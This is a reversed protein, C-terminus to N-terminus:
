NRKRVKVGGKLITPFSHSFGEGKVSVTVLRSSTLIHKEQNGYAIGLCDDKVAAIEKDQKLNHMLVTRPNPGCYFLYYAGRYSIRMLHAMHTPQEVWYVYILRIFNKFATQRWQCDSKEEDFFVFEAPKESGLSSVNTRLSYERGAIDRQQEDLQVHYPHSIRAIAEKLSSSSYQFSLKYIHRSTLIFTENSGRRVKRLSDRERWRYSSVDGKTLNPKFPTSMISWRCVWLIKRDRTSYEIDKLVDAEPYAYKTHRQNPGEKLKYVVRNGVDLVLIFSANRYHRGTVIPKTPKRIKQSLDYKQRSTTNQTSHNIILTDVVCSLDSTWESTMNTVATKEGFRRYHFYKM